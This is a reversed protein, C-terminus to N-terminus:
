ATDTPHRLRSALAFSATSDLRGAALEVKARRREDAVFQALPRELRAATTDSVTTTARWRAPRPAAKPTHARSSHRAAQHCAAIPQADRRCHPLRAIHDDLAMHELKRGIQRWALIRQVDPKYEASVCRAIGKPRLPSSCGSNTVAQLHHGIIRLWTIPGCVFVGEDRPRKKEALQPVLIRVEASHDLTVHGVVLRDGVSPTIKGCNRLSTLTPCSAMKGLAFHVAGRVRPTPGSSRRGM